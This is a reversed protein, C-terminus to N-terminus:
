AQADGDMSLAQGSISRGSKSALFVAFDGIDAPDVFHQISQNKMEMREVEEMPLGNLAARGELVRRFRPGETAGPLIANVRVGYQGLERSLTKTYGILGWKTTSYASRNPYGVRGALSSTILVVGAGSARLHPICARTVLYTGLLNTRLVEAWTDPDSSEVPATQGGIGANSLLVDIGGMRDAAQAVMRDVSARDGVDCVSTGFAPDSEALRALAETDVDGMHVQAGAQAFARAMALGIGNAGATVLVRQPTKKTM